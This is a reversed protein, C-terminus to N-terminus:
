WDGSAPPRGAEDDEQTDDNTCRQAKETETAGVIVASVKEVDDVDNRAFHLDAILDFDEPRTQGRPVRFAHADFKATCQM